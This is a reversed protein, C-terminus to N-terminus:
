RKRAASLAAKVPLEVLTGILRRLEQQEPGHGGAGLFTDLEIESVRGGSPPNPEHRVFVRGNLAERVLYWQDGNSSRYILRTEASM